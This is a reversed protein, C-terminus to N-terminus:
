TLLKNTTIIMAIMYKTDMSGKRSTYFQQGDKNMERVNSWGDEREHEASYLNDVDIDYQNDIDITEVQVDRVLQHSNCRVKVLAFAGSPISHILESNYVPQNSTYSPTSGASSTGSYTYTDSQVVQNDLIQISDCHLHMIMLDSKDDVDNQEIYEVNNSIVSRDILPVTASTVASDLNRKVILKNNITQRTYCKFDLVIIETDDTGDDIVGASNSATSSNTNTSSNTHTSTSLVPIDTYGNIINQDDLQQQTQHKTQSQLAAIDAHQVNICEITYFNYDLINISQSYAVIKNLIWQPFSHYLWTYPDVVEPVISQTSIINPQSKTGFETIYTLLQQARSSSNLTTDGYSQQIQIQPQQQVIEQLIQFSAFNNCVTDVVINGNDAPVCINNDSSTTGTIYAISSILICILLIHQYM